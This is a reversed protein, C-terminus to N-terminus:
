RCEKNNCHIRNLNTSKDQKITEIFPIEKWIGSCLKKGKTTFDYPYCTRETSSLHDCYSKTEDEYCAHTPEKDLVGIITFTVILLLIGVGVQTETEM